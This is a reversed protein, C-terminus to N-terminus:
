RHPFPVLQESFNLSYSIMPLVPSPCYIVDKPLEEEFTPDAYLILFRVKESAHIPLQKSINFHQSIVEWSPFFNRARVPVYIPLHIITDIVLFFDYINHPGQLLCISLRKIASFAISYKKRFQKYIHITEKEVKMYSFTSHMKFLFRTRRHLLVYKNVLRSRQKKYRKENERLFPKEKNYQEKELFNDENNEIVLSFFRESIKGSKKDFIYGLLTAGIRRNKNQPNVFFEQNVIGFHWSDETEAIHHISIASLSLTKVHDVVAYWAENLCHTNM